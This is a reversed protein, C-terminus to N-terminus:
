GGGRALIDYRDSAKRRKGGSLTGQRSTAKMV